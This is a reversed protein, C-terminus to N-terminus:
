KKLILKLLAYKEKYFLNCVLKYKIGQKKYYTNKKWMPFKQHMIGVIKHINDQYNDFKFFRLSAAHLLHDTYLWEIEEAYKKNNNFGQYLNDLSAFIDELKKNYTLQKMTSGVHMNYYYLGENIFSIKKTKIGWIPVIAVDEYARLKPFYLKNDTIIKKRVLKGCPGANNLVYQKVSDDNEWITQLEENNNTVYTMLCWVIDAKDVIARDYLKLVMDNDIWDDSDVFMLFEGNAKDIAMNRAIAQGENEKKILIIRDHYEKEYKKCIDYSGDSSGDDVLIIEIDKFSQKVLSDLCKSLYDQVNYVPVIISVKKM